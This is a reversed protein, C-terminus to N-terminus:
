KNWLIDYALSFLLSYKCGWHFFELIRRLHQRARPPSTTRPCRSQTYQTHKEFKQTETHTYTHSPSDRFHAWLVCAWMPQEVHRCHSLEPIVKSLEFRSKSIAIRM